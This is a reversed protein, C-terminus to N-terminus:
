LPEAMREALQQLSWGLRPGFALLDIDDVSYIHGNEAAATLRLAPNAALTALDDQSHFVLIADPNAEIAAEPTLPKYGQIDAFVNTFGAIQLAGNALTGTGAVQFGRSGGDMVFMVNMDGVRDALQQQASRVEAEVQKALETGADSLGLADATAQIKHTLGPLTPENDLIDIHVGANILQELTDAPGADETTIIREPALSLVGEASLTRMYGVNPLETAAQPYISTTDAGVLRDDAGLAYVIETISGDITVLREAQALGALASLASWVVVASTLKM